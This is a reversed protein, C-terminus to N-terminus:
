GSPSVTVVIDSHIDERIVTPEKVPIVVEQAVTLWGSKRLEDMSDFLDVQRM